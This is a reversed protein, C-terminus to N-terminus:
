KGGLGALATDIVLASIVAAGAMLAGAACWLALVGRIRETM